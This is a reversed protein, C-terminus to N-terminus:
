DYLILTLDTKSTSDASVGKLFYRAEIEGTDVNLVGGVSKGGIEETIFADDESVVDHPISDLLEEGRKINVEGNKPDIWYIASDPKEAGRIIGIIGSVLDEVM